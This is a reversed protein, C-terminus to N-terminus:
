PGLLDLQNTNDDVFYIGHKHPAVALGFLAGAGPSAGPASVTRDLAITAVQTGTPATDVLLGNGSNVTLIDGGPAVALGLPGNLASDAHSLKYGTGADNSRFLADPVARITNGATDAIYLTGNPALGVGTPGVVLAAPDSREAFGSAIVTNALVRPGAHTVDLILRVVTGRHVTHGGAAVTGNLVNTVFLETIDGFSVSTMDWPGNIDEATITAVLHGDRNVIALGGATATAATGDTTPLNGVAVFGHPLVSLATTLGTGGPLRPLRAFTRQKGNPSIEVITRGTGQLNAANNFNSVLVDGATLRGITHDIVAVGYPNIDGDGPRPNASAPITSSVTSVHQFPGILTPSAWAPAVALTGALAVSM